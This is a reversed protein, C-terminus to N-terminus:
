YYAPREVNVEFDTNNIAGALSEEDSMLDEYDEDQKALEGGWGTVDAFDSEHDLFVFIGPKVTKKSVQKKFTEWNVYSPRHIGLSKLYEESSVTELLFQFLEDYLQQNVTMNSKAISTRIISIRLYREFM